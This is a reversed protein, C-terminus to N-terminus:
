GYCCRTLAVRPRRRAGPLHFLAAHVCRKRPRLESRDPRREHRADRVAATSLRRVRGVGEARAAGRPKADTGVDDEDGLVHFGAAGVVAM